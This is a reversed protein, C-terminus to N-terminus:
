EWGNYGSQLDYLQKYGANKLQKCAEASRGGAACYVLVKRDKPIMREVESLFNDAFYSVNISGKIKGEQVENATRVDLIMATSDLMLEKFRANDVKTQSFVQVTTLLILILLYKQMTHIKNLLLLENSIRNLM